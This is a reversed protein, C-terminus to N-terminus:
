ITTCVHPPENMDRDPKAPSCKERRRPRERPAGDCSFRRSDAPLHFSRPFRLLLLLLLYVYFSNVHILLKVHAKQQDNRKPAKAPSWVTCRDRPRDDRPRTRQGATSCALTHSLPIFQSQSAAMMLVRNTRKPVIILKPPPFLYIFHICLFLCRAVTKPYKRVGRRRNPTGRNNAKGAGISAVSSTRLRRFRIFRVFISDYFSHIVTVVYM